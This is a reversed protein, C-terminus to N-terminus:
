GPKAFAAEIERLFAPPEVIQLEPFRRRFPPSSMLDLLDRDRTVLFRANTASALNVYPADDPDRDYTFDAPVDEVPEIYKSLDLILRDVRETTVGLRAPLKAPLARLERLIHDSVFVHVYGMQAATVCAGAPGKPNILAQAFLSCDFVAPIAPTM